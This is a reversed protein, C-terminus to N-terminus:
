AETGATYTVGRHTATNHLRVEYHITKMKLEKQKYAYIM